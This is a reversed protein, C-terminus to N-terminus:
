EIIGNDIWLMQLQNTGRSSASGASCVQTKAALTNLLLEIEALRTAQGQQLREQQEESQLACFLPPNCHLM